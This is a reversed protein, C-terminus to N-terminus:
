ESLNSRRMMVMVTTSLNGDCVYGWQKVKAAVGSPNFRCGERGGVYMCCWWSFCAVGNGGNGNCQWVMMCVGDSRVGDSHIRTTWSNTWAGLKSLTAMLVHQPVVVVVMMMLIVTSWSYCALQTHSSAMLVWWEGDMMWWPLRIKLTLWWWVGEKSCHGHGHGDGDYWWWMVMLMAMVMVQQMSLRKLGQGARAAMSELNETTAFAWCSGCQGQNYVPTIVGHSRRCMPTLTLTHTHTHRRRHHKNTNYRTILQTHMQKGTSAKLSRPM